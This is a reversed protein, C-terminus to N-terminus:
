LCSAEICLADSEDKKCDTVIGYCDKGLFSEGIIHFGDFEFVEKKSM